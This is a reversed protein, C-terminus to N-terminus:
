VSDMKRALLHTRKKVTLTVTFHSPWFLLLWTGHPNRANPSLQTPILSITSYLIPPHKPMGGMKKGLKNNLM